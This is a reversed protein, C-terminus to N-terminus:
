CFIHPSRRFQFSGYGWKLFYFVRHMESYNQYNKHLFCKLLWLLLSRTSEPWFSKKEQYSFVLIMITVLYGIQFLLIWFSGNNKTSKFIFCGSNNSKM